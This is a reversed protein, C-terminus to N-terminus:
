SADSALFATRFVCPKDGAPRAKLLLYPAFDTQRFAASVTGALPNEPDWRARDEPTEVLAVEEWDSDVRVEVRVERRQVQFHWRDRVKVTTGPAFQWRVEFPAPRGAAEVRDEVDLTQSASANLTRRIQAGPLTWLAKALGHDECLTPAPHHSSWLFPGRRDPLTGRPATPGNHAARSALWARLPPDGYYAGTGPDIVIAVGHYWLSLHLADLHGHAATALYGLPSLDWRGFWFGSELVAQGSERFYFWDGVLEAGLPDGVGVRPAGVPEQEGLWYTLGTPQNSGGIWRHWEAVARREDLFWPTVFASDSDGYDWPERPYQVEWFFRAAACLRGTVADAVSRGSSQLAMRAQWGFELSFLQYNLAQERNGGDGAFQALIEHEWARQLRELPACWRAAEPWRALAVILGTLEGLLHNNASSGFSRHRWTFAAHAPLLAQRLAELRATRAPGAPPRALLADIWTFQILRIGAELASTWNWGRYAPNRQVWDELWDLCKAAAREEDLVHAAMALRVLPSWRSLEWVLKIDAGTPLARHNLGFASAETALDCGARYDKQWRPPDDVQLPLHGFARWRGALLDDVERALAERQQPPCAGPAPVPPFASPRCPAAGETPVRRADVVQRLKKRAHLAVELPAMARLRHWYWLLSKM